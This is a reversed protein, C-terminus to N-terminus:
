GDLRSAEIRPRPEGPTLRLSLPVVTSALDTPQELTSRGALRLTGGELRYLELAWPDRDIVLLERVGVTEYFPLKERVRDYPSAIEVAFDPGGQWHSARRKASGGRLFVALDPCRYNHTWDADRDSVNVGPVVQGMGTTGILTQLIFILWSVIAQHHPN